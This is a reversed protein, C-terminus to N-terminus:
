ISHITKVSQKKLNRARAFLPIWSFFDLEKSQHSVYKLQVQLASQRSQSLRYLHLAQHQRSTYIRAQVAGADVSAM